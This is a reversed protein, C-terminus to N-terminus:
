NRIYFIEDLSKSQPISSIISAVNGRQIAISIRQFLFPRSRSELTKLRIKKSLENLFSMASPGWPGITEFGIPLFLYKESDSINLKEKLKPKTLHLILM